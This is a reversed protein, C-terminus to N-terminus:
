CDTFKSFPEGDTFAVTILLNVSLFYFVIYLTKVDAMNSLQFLPFKQM